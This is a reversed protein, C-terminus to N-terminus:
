DSLKESRGPEWYDAAMNSSQEAGSRRHTRVSVSVAGDTVYCGPVHGRGKKMEKYINKILYYTFM